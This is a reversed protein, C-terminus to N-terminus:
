QHVGDSEELRREAWREESREFIRRDRERIADLKAIKERLTESLFRTWAHLDEVQPEWKARERAVISREVICLGLAGVIGAPVCVAIRIWLSPAVCSVVAGLVGSWFLMQAGAVMGWFCKTSVNM